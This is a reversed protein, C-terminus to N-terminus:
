RADHKCCTEVVNVDSHARNKCIYHRSSLWWRVLKLCQQWLELSCQKRGHLIERRVNAHQQVNAHVEQKM